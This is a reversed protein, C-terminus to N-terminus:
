SIIEVLELLVGEPGQAYVVKVKGDSSLHPNNKVDCGFNKIENLTSEVDSVTLAIHTLGTSYPEGLWKKKDPHSQFNLLELMGGNPANLKVTVVKVGRLGMIADLSAGEEDMRVVVEFNLVGCWFELARELNSVVLGTHRIAVTM